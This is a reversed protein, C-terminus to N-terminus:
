MYEDSGSRQPGNAVAAVRAANRLTRQTEEDTDAVLQSLLSRPNALLDVPRGVAVAKGADMEVIRDYDIVTHLRHAITLLSTGFRAVDARVVRQIKADTDQDVAATAEDLCLLKCGRLMARALCLLQREGVSYNAGGVGVEMLLGQSRGQIAEAMSCRTLVEMVAEESFASDPDLNQLLTGSFLVPEQPIISIAARLSKIDITTIDVGDITIRGAEPDVLRFLATLLTSKGAGTRGVVGMRQGGGIRFEVKDAALPLGPRYRLSFREFCVAGISPWGAPPLVSAATSADRRARRLSALEEESELEAYSRIRQVSTMLNEVEATQRIGFQLLGTLQMSQTLVVGALAPSMRGRLCVVTICVSLVIVNSIGDLRIGVWRSGALFLFHPRHFRDLNEIFAARFYGQLKAARICALGSLSGSFLAYVPSKSVSEIRKIERSTALYLKQIKVFIMFMPPMVVLISPLAISCALIAGVATFFIQFAALASWPLQTDIADLDSAFRNIIRGQPHTEFFSLPAALVHGFMNNHLARASRVTGWTFGLTRGINLPIVIFCMLAYIGVYQDNSLELGPAFKEDEDVGNSDTGESWIALWVDAGIRALQCLGSVCCVAAGYRWGGGARLHYIYTEKGVTGQSRDEDVVLKGKGQGKGQGKDGGTLTEAPSRKIGDDLQQTQQADRTAVTDAAPSSTLEAQLVAGFEHDTQAVEEPTGDAVIEGQDLLICHEVRSLSFLQHTAMVVTRRERRLLGFICHTLLHAGVHADVASLPDDLLVLNADRQYVARALNVRLKQGGSLNVGREGIETEDGAQLAELDTQLACAHIVANYRHKDYPQGLLVNHRVTGAVIWPQQPVYAIPQRTAMEISGETLNLEGLIGQLLSSKGCGVKGILATVEGERITLSVRKLCEREAELGWRFCAQNFIVAPPLLSPDDKPGNRATPPPPLRPAEPSEVVCLFETIREIAVKAEALKEISMPLMNVARYMVNFLALCGFAKPVTLEHGMYQYLSFSALSVLLPLAFALASNASKVAAAKLLGAVEQNRLESVREVFADEWNFLKIVKIGSLVENMM